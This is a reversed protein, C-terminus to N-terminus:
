EQLGGVASGLSRQGEASLAALTPTDEILERTYVHAPRGIVDDTAGAEVIRGRNLVVVRDAITRVLALDHTVFLLALHERRRLEELLAVIAAQVSVDLASTIEDCILVAPECALARAIAVRQREGGSLEDPYAAAVSAPLSVRELATRVRDAAARGRLGFFHTIPVRVIEGITQRPNLSNYPSQFIYQLGRRVDAPRDRTRGQLLTDKFRIEGARSVHLGMITRALTTKGSGSEGVLALCEQPRLELSVGHLVQDPGHFADVDRVVLL